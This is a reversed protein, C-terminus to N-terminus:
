LNGSKFIGEKFSERGGEGGGWSVARSAESASTKGIQGRKQRKGWQPAQKQPQKPGCQFYISTFLHPNIIGHQFKGPKNM